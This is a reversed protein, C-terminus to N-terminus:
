DEPVGARKRLAEFYEARENELSPHDPAYEERFEEARDCIATPGEQQPLAAAIADWKEKMSTMDTDKPYFRIQRILKNMPLGLGAGDLVEAGLAGIKRKTEDDIFFYGDVAQIENHDGYFGSSQTAYGKRYMEAVADRMQPEIWENFAASHLEEETPKPNEKLRKQLEEAMEAHIVDRLEAMKEWFELSGVDAEEKDPLASEFPNEISM